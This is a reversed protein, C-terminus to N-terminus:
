VAPDVLVLPEDEPGAPAGAVAPAPVNGGGGEEPDLFLTMGSAIGAESIRSGTVIPDGGGEFRLSWGSTDGRPQNAERFAEKMLHEVKQNGNVTVAARVGSVVVTLTIKADSAM